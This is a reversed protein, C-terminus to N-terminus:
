EGEGKNRADNSLRFNAEERAPDDFMIRHWEDHFWREIALCHELVDSPLDERVQLFERVKVVDTAADSITYAM